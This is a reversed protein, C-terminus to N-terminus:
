TQIAWLRLLDFTLTIEFVNHKRIDSLCIENKPNAKKAIKYFIRYICNLQFAKVPARALYRYWDVERKKLFMVTMIAVIYYIVM